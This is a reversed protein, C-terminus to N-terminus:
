QKEAVAVSKSTTSSTVVKVTGAIGSVILAGGLVLTAGWVIAMETVHELNLLCMLAYTFTVPNLWIHAVPKSVIIVFIVLALYTNFGVQQGFRAILISLGIPITYGILLGTIGGLFIEKIKSNDLEYAFFFICIFFAPWTDEVKLTEFVVNCIVLWITFIVSMILHMKSIGTKAKM